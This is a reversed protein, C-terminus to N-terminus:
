AEKTTAVIFVRRMKEIKPLETKSVNIWVAAARKGMERVLADKNALIKEFIGRQRELWGDIERYEQVDFGCEDLIPRYDKVAFPIDFEWTLIVFPKGPKLVRAVERLVAQKDPIMYLSDVCMAADFERDKFPLARIDGAQFVARGEMEFESIRRTAIQIAAESLDLGRLEANLTRAVYLGNGGRGCAFDALREDPSLGVAQVISALDTKTTFGCHDIEEAYEDGFVDRYIGRFTPGVDNIGYVDEFSQKMSTRGQILFWYLGSFFRAIYRKTSM